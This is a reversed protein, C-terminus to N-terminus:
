GGAAERGFESPSEDVGAGNAVPDEAVVDDVIVVGEDATDIAPAVEPTVVDIDADAGGLLGCGSPDHCDGADPDTAVLRPLTPDPVAVTPFETTNGDRGRREVSNTLVYEFSLLARVGCRNRVPPAGLLLVLVSVDPRPASRLTSLLQLVGAPLEARPVDPLPLAFRDSSSLLEATSADEHAAGLLM